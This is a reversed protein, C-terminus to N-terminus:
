KDPFIDGAKSRMEHMGNLYLCGCGLLPDNIMLPEASQQLMARVPIIGHLNGPIAKKAQPLHGPLFRYLGEKFLLFFVSRHGDPPIQLKTLM